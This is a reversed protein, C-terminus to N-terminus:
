VVLPVRAIASARSASVLDQDPSKDIGRGNDALQEVLLVHGDNTGPRVPLDAVVVHQQGAQQDLPQLPGAGHGYRWFGCAM